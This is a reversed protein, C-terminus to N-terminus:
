HVGAYVAWHQLEAATQLAVAQLNHGSVQTVVEHTDQSQADRLLLLPPLPLLLPV